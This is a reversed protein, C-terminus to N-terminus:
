DGARITWIGGSGDWSGTQLPTLLEVHGDTMLYNFCGHHYNAAATKLFSLQQKANWVVPWGTRWARNNPDVMETLLLTGAPDPMWSLKVLSLGSLDQKNVKRAFQSGFKQVIANEDWWLGVGTTNDPGPPWNFPQMDHGSMAYTRPQDRKVVDSPCVLYPAMADRSSKGPELYPLIETDWTLHLLGVGAPPLAGGHDDAYRQMAEGLVQLNRTCRAIRGCEGLHSLGFWGALLVVVAISVLLDVQTFACVSLRNHRITEMEDNRFWQM